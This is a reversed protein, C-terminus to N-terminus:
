PPFFSTHLKIEPKSDNDYINITSSDGAMVLDQLTLITIELSFSEHDETIADDIILIQVCEESTSNPPFSFM